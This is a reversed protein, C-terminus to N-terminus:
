IGNASQIARIYTVIKSVEARTIGTVPPMDGFNWHHAPTGFKAARQFSEDGLHNKEYVKHLFTHGKQTGTGYDGHCAVCKANFYTEGIKADATLEPVIVSPTQTQTIQDSSTDSPQTFYWVALLLTAIAVIVINRM